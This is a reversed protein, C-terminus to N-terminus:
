SLPKPLTEHGLILLRTVTQLFHATNIPRSVLLINGKDAFLREAKGHGDSQAHPGTCIIPLGPMIELAKALLGRLMPASFELDVILLDVNGKELLRLAKDPTSPAVMQAGKSTLLESVIGVLADSEGLIMIRKHKLAKGPPPIRVRSAKKVTPLILSFFAGHGPRSSLEIKGGHRNFIASAVTLGLGLHRNKTTFFPDFIREQDVFPIGRGNDQVYIRALGPTEELTILVKGEPVCAEIANSIVCSIATKLADPDGRVVPTARFFTELNVASEIDALNSSCIQKSAKIAEDVVVPLEMLVRQTKGSGGMFELLALMDQQYKKATHLQHLFEKGSISHIQPESLCNDLIKTCTRLQRGLGSSLSCILHHKEKELRKKELEKQRELPTLSALFARRGHYRIKSIRAECPVKEGGKRKLDLDYIDPVVEGSLRKRHMTMVYNLSDEHVFAEFPREIVENEEYGLDELIKRNTFLIKRDQILIIWGPFETLILQQDKVIKSLNQNEQRAQKLKNRYSDIKRELRSIKKLLTDNTIKQMTSSDPLPLQGQSQGQHEYAYLTDYGKNM